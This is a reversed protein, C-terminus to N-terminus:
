PNLSAVGGGVGRFGAGWVKFGWGLVRFELGGLRQVGFGTFTDSGTVSSGITGRIYISYPKPHIM